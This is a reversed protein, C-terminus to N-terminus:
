LKLDGERIKLLACMCDQLGVSVLWHDEMAVVGLPFVVKPKYQPIGAREMPSLTDTESGCVIPEKSIALPIFSPGPEHLTAGVYYRRRYPPIENDLTSHFFRLLKGKYPVPETGGKLSGWKWRLSTSERPTLETGNKWLLVQKPSSAYLCTLGTDGPFQWFRWNKQCISMDNNEYPLQVADKVIWESATETLKGYKVACKPPMQPWISDVYAVHLEDRFVFLQPDEESGGVHPVALKKNQSVNGKEDIVAIALATSLDRENHYRYAMLLKGKWRLISPNYGHTFLAHRNILVTEIQESVPPHLNIPGYTEIWKTWAKNNWTAHAVEGNAKPAVGVERWIADKAETGGHKRILAMMVQPWYPDIGLFMEPFESQHQKWWGVTFRFMDCTPHFIPEPNAGDRNLLTRHSWSPAPSAGDNLGTDCRTLMIVDEDDRAAMTAVRIVDKVFPFRFLKDKAVTTSDRGIAGIPTPREVWVCNKPWSSKAKLHRERNEDNVEYQSWAHIILPTTPNPKPAIQHIADLLEPARNAFDGYRCYAIHNARIVAGHWLSPKDQTLAVVPLNPCAQALHLPASDSAVLCHASEYLGILDFLYQAKVESLDLIRYGERFESQLMRMLTNKHPFPSSSGGLSVLITKVPKPKRGRKPVPGLFGHADRLALEREHNRRDFVLTAQKAWVDMKGALRYPEKQFSDTMAQDQKHPLYTNRKVSDTSGTVQLCEIRDTVKRASAIAEDLALWDGDFIHPDVYNVGELLGAFPRSVMLTPRHGSDSESKLLPLLSMIDGSRGLCIYLKSTM